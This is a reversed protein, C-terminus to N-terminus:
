TNRLTKFTDHQARGTKLVDLEVKLTKIHHEYNDVLATQSSKKIEDLKSRNQSQVEIRRLIKHVQSDHLTKMDQETEANSKILYIIRDNLKHTENQLAAYEERMLQQQTQNHLLITSQEDKLDIHIRHAEEVKNELFLVQLKYENLLHRQHSIELEYENMRMENQLHKQNLSAQLSCNYDNQSQHHVLMSQPQIEEFSTMTKQPVKMYTESKMGHKQLQQFAEHHQHKLMEGLKATMISERRTTTLEEELNRIRQMKRIISESQKEHENQLVKLERKIINMSDNSHELMTMLNFYKVKLEQHEEILITESQSDVQSRNVQHRSRDSQSDVQSRNVQHRSGDSQTRNGFHARQFHPEKAQSSISRRKDKLNYYNENMGQIILNLRSIENNLGAEEAM